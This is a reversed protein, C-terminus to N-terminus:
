RFIYRLGFNPFIPMQYIEGVPTGPVENAEFRSMWVYSLFNSRNFLNNLGMYLEMHLGRVMADKNVQVDLRGYYPVRFANM